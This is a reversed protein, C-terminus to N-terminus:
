RAIRIAASRNTALSFASSLYALTSEAGMNANPGYSELGDCCGGGVALVADGTNRGYFWELGLEAIKKYRADGTAANAALAADVLSVAELPQQAYRARRGDRVYWGDSGIPLFTDNVVVIGTYFDFTRRGLDIFASNDLAMGIQFLAEPLRANDYTMEPEFWEWGPVAAAEFRASLENGIALLAADLEPVGVELSERAQALGLAAYAHSRIFGLARVSPLARELLQRCIARWEARPAHRMGYGVAWIARGISDDTGVDDLWDRQYSMFNHFRGDPLQADMLFALYIRALRLAPERRADFKSAAVAVMFARSVDDTCYGTSRNAVDYTAHQVIGTDDTLDILHDLPPLRRTVNM